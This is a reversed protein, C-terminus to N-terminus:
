SNMYSIDVFKYTGAYGKSEVIEKKPDKMNKKKLKRRKKNVKVNKGVSRWVESVKTAVNLM